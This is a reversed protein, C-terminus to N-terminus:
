TKGCMTGPSAPSRGVSELARRPMDHSGMLDRVRSSGPPGPHGPAAANGCRVLAELCNVSRLGLDQYLM